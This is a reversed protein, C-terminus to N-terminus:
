KGKTKREYHKENELLMQQKTQQSYNDFNFTLQNELAKINIIRKKHTGRWSQHPNLKYVNRRKDLSDKVSLLINKKKLENMATIVTVKSLSLKEQLTEINIGVFNDYQAISLLYLLVKCTAPKLERTLTENIAQFIMIWDPMGKIKNRGNYVTVSVNGGEQQYIEKMESVVKYAKKKNEKIVM